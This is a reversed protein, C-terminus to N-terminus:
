VWCPCGRVSFINCTSMKNQPFCFLGEMPGFTFRRNKQCRGIKHFIYQFYTVFELNFFLFSSIDFFWFCEYFFWWLLRHCSHTNLIKRSEYKWYGWIQNFIWISSWRKLLMVFNFFYCKQLSTSISISNEFFQPNVSAQPTPAKLILAGSAPALPLGFKPLLRLRLAKRPTFLLFQSSNWKKRRTIGSPYWCLFFLGIPKTFTSACWHAKFSTREHPAKPHVNM